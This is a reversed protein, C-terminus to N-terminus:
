RAEPLLYVVHSNRSHPLPSLRRRDTAVLGARKPLGTLWSLQRGNPHQPLLGDRQARLRVDGVTVGYDGAKRALELTLPVLADLEEAHGATVRQIAARKAVEAFLTAGALQDALPIM